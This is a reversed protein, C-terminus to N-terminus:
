SNCIKKVELGYGKVKNHLTMRTIGLLKAARSYNGGTEALISAIHNREVEKLSKEPSAQHPSPLNQPSLDAATISSDQVLVVAREIANELERVNGPWDYKM